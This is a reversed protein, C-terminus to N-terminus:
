YCCYFYVYEDVWNQRVEKLVDLQQQSVAIELDLLATLDKLQMVENEQIMVMRDHVDTEAEESSEADATFIVDLLM